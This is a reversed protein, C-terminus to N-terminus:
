IPTPVRRDYRPTETGLLEDVERKGALLYGIAESLEKATGLDATLSAVSGGGGHLRLLGLRIRELASVAETMRARAEDRTVELDARLGAREEAGIRTPDDGVESLLRNLEAVHRRMHQADAELKEITAPLASLEQRTSKPLTDFLRDAAIGIAMETPRHAGGGALRHPTLGIGGLKFLWKGARGRFLGRLWEGIADRRKKNRAAAAIGSFLGTEFAVMNILDVNGWGPLVLSTIAGGVFVGFGALSLRPLWRDIFTIDKGYEFRIEANRRGVEDDLALRVDDIAFGAGLFRRTHRAFAVLPAFTTGLTAAGYISGLVWAWFTTAQEDVVGVWLGGWILPLLLWVVPIAQMATALERLKKVYVRVPMPLEIEVRVGKGIAEALAAGDPYREDPSKRLCRDFAQAVEGPVEPALSGVLPAPETLHKALVAAATPAEFPFRGTLTYFGVVGLSYIDSRADVIDGTAQEPSMFEATGVAERVGSIGPEPGVHAIGFDTVLARGSARELLINDPKVDRHVVGEAHAYALAWAVERLVRVAQGSPLPGRMRVREGLTEGEIYAMAFFVFDGVEDVAHIPVIHPHSLKAATRAERLFRERHEPRAAMVPPLLKLAVPRDLAVEHALYVVGMGGRGIEEVLSYRGLLTEQLAVFDSDPTREV